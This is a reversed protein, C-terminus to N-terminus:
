GAKAALLKGLRRKKWMTWGSMAVGLGAFVMTSPEPVVVLNGSAAQFVLYTGDSATLSQWDQGYRTFAGYYPSGSSAPTMAFASFNSADNLASASGGTYNVGSFLGWTTDNPYLSTGLGSADLSMSGGLEFSSGAVTSSSIDSNVNMLTTGGTQIFSTAALSSNSSLDILGGMFCVDAFTGNGVYSGSLVDLETTPMGDGHVTAGSVSLSAVNGGLSPNPDLFLWHTGSIAEYTAGPLTSGLANIRFFTGDGKLYNGNLDLVNFILEGSGTNTFTMNAANVQVGAQFIQNSTATSTIGVNLVASNGDIVITATPSMFVKQTGSLKIMGIPVTDGNIVTITQNLLNNNFIATDGATPNGTAAESWNTAYVPDTGWRQAATGTGVPTWTRNAAFADTGLSAVSDIAVLAVAVARALSFQSSM